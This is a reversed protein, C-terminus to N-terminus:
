ADKQVAAVRRSSQSQGTLWALPLSPLLQCLCLQPPLPVPAPPLPPLLLLLPLLLLGAGEGEGREHGGVFYTVTALM